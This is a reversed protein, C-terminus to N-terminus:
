NKIEDSRMVTGAEVRRRSFRKGIRILSKSAKAKIVRGTAILKNGGVFDFFYFDVKMGNRLGSSIGKNVVAVKRTKSLKVVTGEIRYEKFASDRKSFTNDPADNRRVLGVFVRPGLDTNRGTIVQTYQLQMKWRDGIAFNLGGYPASWQRNVSNFFVSSGQYMYPKNEPDNTYPDNNQSYVNEIGAYLSMKTWVLGYQVKSFIEQSLDQAPSRYLMKMEFINSSKTKFTIDGGIGYERSGEGLATQDPEGSSYLSSSHLAYRYFGEIAYKVREVEKFSYKFGVLASEMGSRSLKFTDSKTEDYIFTNQSQIYRGRLGIHGELQDTFGYKGLFEFDARQHSNSGINKTLESENNVTSQTQFYEASFSIQNGSQKLTSTFPIYAVGALSIQCFLGLSVASIIKKM